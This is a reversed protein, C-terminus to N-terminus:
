RSLAKLILFVTTASLKAKQKEAPKDKLQRELAHFFGPLLKAMEEAAEGALTANPGYLLYQFHSFVLNWGPQPDRVGQEFISSDLIHMDASLLQILRGKTFLPLIAEILSNTQHEFMRVDAPERSFREREVRLALLLPLAQNDLLYRDMDELSEVAKNRALFKAPDNRTEELFWELEDLRRTLSDRETEPASNLWSLSLRKVTSFHARVQSLTGPRARALEIEEMTLIPEPEPEEPEPLSFPDKAGPVHPRQAIKEQKQILAYQKKIRERISDELLSEVRSLLFDLDRANRALAAPDDLELRDYLSHYALIQEARKNAAEAAAARNLSLWDSSPATDALLVDLINQDRPTLRPLVPQLQASSWPPQLPNPNSERIDWHRVAGQDGRALLYKGDPSLSVRELRGPVSLQTDAVQITGNPEVTVLGEGSHANVNIGDEASYILSYHAFEEKLHRDILERLGARRSASLGELLSSYASWLGPGYIEALVEARARIAKLQFRMIDLEAADASPVAGLTQEVAERFRAEVDDRGKLLAKRADKLIARKDALPAEPDALVDLRTKDLELHRLFPALAKSTELDETNIRALFGLDPFEALFWSNYPLRLREALREAMFRPRATPLSFMVAQNVRSLTLRPAAGAAVVAGQGALACLVAALVLNRM